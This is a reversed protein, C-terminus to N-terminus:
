LQRVCRVYRGHQLNDTSCRIYSASLSCYHSYNYGAHYPTWYHGTQPEEHWGGRWYGSGGWFAYLASINACGGLEGFDSSHPVRWPYPCLVSRYDSVCIWNYYYAHTSIKYQAPPNATTALYAVSSCGQVPNSLAGSWIQNGCSWSATAGGSYPPYEMVTSAGVIITGSVTIDACYNVNATTVTYAYTGTGTPNGSITYTNDSWDGSIGAPLNSAAAGSANATTYKIATIANGVTVTQNDNGSILTIEPPSNVTLVWLGASQMWGATCIGDEKAWRTFTHAGITTNYISPNYTAANTADIAIGNRRWEYMINGNAGSADASGTITNVTGGSCVTQGATAIVGADFNCAVVTLMWSGASQTFATNCIDDKAHRTYIYTGVATADAVPPTYGAANAGSIANGDKYWQYTIEGGGTAPQESNITEPTGGAAITQGTDSITGATFHCAIVTLMWSGASQTFATNCIDDKAQRTYIYTGAVTADTAPPTYGAENADSIAEGDKYWQYTIEGGGTAPQESNITEPTGGAAITQGTDSITGATFNCAIVTLTWSGASQVFATHCIDDKAQRTYIYTGAAAADTAPPTYGAANAGSIANGDKYWQYTIEGSGIAPQESNITEPTGGAAITQGTSLISGASFAPCLQPSQTITIEATFDGATVTITATREQLYNPNEAVSINGESDGNASVPTVSCWESGFTVEATWPINSTVSFPIVNATESISYVPKADLLFFVPEERPECAVLVLATWMFFLKVGQRCALSRKRMTKICLNNMKM